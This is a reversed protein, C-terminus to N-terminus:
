NSFHNTHNQFFAEGLWLTSLGFLEAAFDVMTVGYGQVWSSNVLSKRWLVVGLDRPLLLSTEGTAALALVHRVIVDPQTPIYGVVSYPSYTRCHQATASDPQLNDSEYGTGACWQQTPGAGLGYQGQGGANYRSSNYYAWDAQWHSHFLSNYSTDSNFSHTVYYPLQVLYAAWISLLPHGQYAHNPQLRRGQWRLWLQAIRPHATCEPPSLAGCVSHYLLWVTYHMEFFPYLGDGELPSLASGLTNNANLLMPIASGDPDVSGNSTCLFATWKVQRFLQQALAAIRLSNPDTRGTNNLYTQVFLVGATNLGTALTSFRDPDSAHGTNSDVFTPMWGNVNRAVQVNPTLGALTQMTLLVRQQYTSLDLWGMALAITEAVLGLGTSGIAAQGWTQNAYDPHLVDYHDLYLGTNDNRALTWLHYSSEALLGLVQDSSGCLTSMCAGDADSSNYRLPAMTAPCLGDLSPQLSGM